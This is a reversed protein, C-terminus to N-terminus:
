PSRDQLQAPALVFDRRLAAMSQEVRAGHPTVGPPVDVLQQVLSDKVGFVVDSDLYDSDGLFLHTVLTERGAAAIRFHVHAPRWPHRGQAALMKGVPGDSPIPYAAPRAGIVWFNGNVDARVRARSTRQVPDKQVDYSGAADSHWIDVVAGPIPSGDVNKVSGEILMPPGDDPGSVRTGLPVEPTDALYFPGLVTTETAGGPLRHNIADVLMSVGLADSLLIFEQRVDSCMKGCATLFAIGGEWEEQTPEVERIFAHLHRVLAESVQRARPTPAGALRAIVADTINHEDFNRIVPM